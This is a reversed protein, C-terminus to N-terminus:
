APNPLQPLHYAQKLVVLLANRLCSDGESLRENWWTEPNPPLSPIASRIRSLDADSWQRERPACEIIYRKFPAWYLWPGVFDDAAAKFLILRGLWPVDSTLCAADLLSVANGLNKGARPDHGLSKLMEVSSVPLITGDTGRRRALEDVIELAHGALTLKM